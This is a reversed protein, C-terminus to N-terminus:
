SKQRTINDVRYTDDEYDKGGRKGVTFVIFKNDTPFTMAHIEMEPSTVMDGPNLLKMEVEKSKDYPQTWYEMQGELILVHQVTKKHYHNGRISGAKTKIIAVHEINVNYFIDTIEGRDDIHKELPYEPNNTNKYKM